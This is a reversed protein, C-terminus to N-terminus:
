DQQTVQNSSQANQGQVVSQLGSIPCQIASPKLETDGSGSGSGSNQTSPNHETNGSSGVAAAAAVATGKTHGARVTHEGMTNGMIDGGHHSKPPTGEGSPTKDGVTTM